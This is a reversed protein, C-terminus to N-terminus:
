DLNEASLSIQMEQKIELFNLIRETKPVYREKFFLMYYGANLFNTAPYIKGYLDALRGKEQPSLNTTPSNILDQIIKRTMWEKVACDFLKNLCLSTKLDKQNLFLGKKTKKCKLKRFLVCKATQPAKIVDRKFFCMAESRYLCVEHPPEGQPPGVQPPEVQPLEELGLDFHVMEFPPEEQPPQGQPPQGQPPHPPQGQPPEELELSLVQDWKPEIM